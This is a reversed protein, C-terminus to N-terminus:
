CSDPAASVDHAGEEVTVRQGVEDAAVHQDYLVVVDYAV